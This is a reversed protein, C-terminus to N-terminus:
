SSVLRVKLKRCQKKAKKVAKSASQSAKQELIQLSTEQSTPQDVHSSNNPTLVAEVLQGNPSKSVTDAVPSTQIDSSAPRDPEQIKAGAIRLVTATLGSLRLGNADIVLGSPNTLATIGAHEGDVLVDATM